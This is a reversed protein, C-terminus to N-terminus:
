RIVRSTLVLTASAYACAVSSRSESSGASGEISGALVIPIFKRSLRSCGFRLYDRTGSDYTRDDGPYDADFGAVSGNADLMDSM